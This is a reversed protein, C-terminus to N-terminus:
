GSMAEKIKAAGAMVETKGKIMNMHFAMSTEVASGAIDDMKEGMQKVWLEKMKDIIAAEWARDALMVMKDTMPNGTDASPLKGKSGCGCGGCRCGCKCRNGGSGSGCSGEGCTNGM